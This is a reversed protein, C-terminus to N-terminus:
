SSDPLDAPTDADRYSSGDTVDMFELRLGNVAGFVSREGSAFVDGLVRGVRRRWAGHMWQAREGVRPIVADAGSAGLRDTLAAIQADSPAVLDCGLVVVVEESGVDHLATVLGGLPGEGPWRDPVAALGLSTLAAHDGGVAAVSTAGADGLGRAVRAAMAEGGIELVAKDQGM